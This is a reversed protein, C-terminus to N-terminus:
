EQPLASVFLKPQNRVEVKLKDSLELNGAVTVVYHERLTEFVRPGPQGAGSKKLEQLNFSVGGTQRALDEFVRREVGAVYVPVISVGNKRAARTVHKDSVRSGGEYGTTLLLIVRRYVTNEFGGDIEAFLADLLRPTNGYRVKSVAQNLLDKSSTFEQILDASSHFSVGAMQDKPQLQAILNSAVPQVAAGVLSTDLLLM